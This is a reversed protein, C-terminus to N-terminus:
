GRESDKQLTKPKRFSECGSHGPRIPRDSEGRGGDDWFGCLVKLSDPNRLAKMATAKFQMLRLIGIRLIRAIAADDLEHNGFLGHRLTLIVRQRYTMGSLLGSLRAALENNSARLDPPEERSVLLRPKGHRM